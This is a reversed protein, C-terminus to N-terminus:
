ELFFDHMVIKGSNRRGFNLELDTMIMPLSFVFFFFLHVNQILYDINDFFLIKIVSNYYNINISHTM